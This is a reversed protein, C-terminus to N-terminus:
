TSESLFADQLSYTGLEDGDNQKKYYVYAAGATGGTLFIGFIWRGWHSRKHHKKHHDDNNNNNNNSQKHANPDEKEVGDGSECQMPTRQSCAVPDGCTMCAYCVHPKNGYSFTHCLAYLVSPTSLGKFTIMPSVDHNITVFPSQHIGYKMQMDLSHQLLSNEEDKDPAGSDAICADIVTADIKSHTYADEVCKENAFYDSDWCLKSFQDIYDWYFKPITYHKEICMRRLAELVIDKGDTRRHSVHCYRGNNTCLNYCLEDPAGDNGICGIAKGDLLVPREKYRLLNLRHDWAPEDVDPENLDFTRAITSFNSAIFEKTHTDIPSYWLEMMVHDDYKPVHWAIEAVVTGTSLHGKNGHIAKMLDQYEHKSIMLNPISIDLDSGDGALRYKAEPDQDTHNGGVGNDETITLIDNGGDTITTPLHTNETDAIIVAAAGINQANRVKKVFTCDGREVMLIFPAGGDPPIQLEKIVQMQDINNGDCLKTNNHLVKVPFVLRGEVGHGLRGFMSSVHPWSENRRLKTPIHFNLYTTENKLFYAHSFIATKATLMVVLLWISLRWMAVSLPIRASEKM